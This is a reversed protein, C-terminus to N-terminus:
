SRNRRGAASTSRRSSTSRERRPSQSQNQNGSQLTGANASDSGKRVKSDSEDSDYDVADNKDKHEKHLGKKKFYMYWLWTVDRTNHVHKTDEDYMRYCDGTHNDAYGIMMMPKGKDNLKAQIPKKTKVGGAM